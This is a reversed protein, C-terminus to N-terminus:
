GDGTSPPRNEPLDESATEAFVDKGYLLIGEDKIEQFLPLSNRLRQFQSHDYVLFSVLEGYEWFLSGFIREALERTTEHTPAAPVDTVILLDIDEYDPNGRAFSGFLIVSVIGGDYQERLRAIAVDLARWGEQLTQHCQKSVLKRVM